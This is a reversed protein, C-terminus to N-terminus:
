ISPKADSAALRCLCCSPMSSSHCSSASISESSSMSTRSCSLCCLGLATGFYSWVWVSSFHHALYPPTMRFM